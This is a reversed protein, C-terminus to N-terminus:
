KWEDGEVIRVIRTTLEHLGVDDTDIQVADDAARLPSDARESDIKDRRELDELVRDYEAEGGLRILELHRRRARVDLSANLYIKIPASGLVVTGIDRGVMVIPGEAAIARQKAVLATRVASIRAVSSVRREVEPERLRSTVDHGDLVLRERGEHTDVQIDAERAVRGVPGTAEVAVDSQITALAVARYMLGTDLFRFGLREALLRGVATKGSAVPGDIAIALPEQM